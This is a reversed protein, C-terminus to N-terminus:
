IGYHSSQNPTQMSMLPNKKNSQERSIENILFLGFDYVEEPQESLQYHQRLRYRLDDCLHPRFQQWFLEPHSPNCEFLILVLLNPLSAGTRMIFADELCDFWEGDDQLLGLANCADEFTGYVVGNVTRLDILLRPEVITTLLLRLYFHEGEVLRAFYLSGIAFGRARIKWTSEHQRRDYQQPFKQYTLRRANEDM